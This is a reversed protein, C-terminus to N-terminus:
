WKCVSDNIGVSRDCVKVFHASYTNVPVPISRKEFLYDVSQIKPNASAM